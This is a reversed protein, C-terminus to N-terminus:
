KGFIAGGQVAIDVGINELEQLMDNSVGGDVAISGKFNPLLKKFEKVRDIPNVIPEQNSFGPNVCLLLVSDIDPNFSYYFDAFETINTEPLIGIGIDIKYTDEYPWIYGGDEPTPLEEKDLKLDKFKPNIIGDRTYTRPVKDLFDFIGNSEFHFTISFICHGDPNHGKFSDTIYDPYEDMMLHVDIGRGNLGLTKHVIFDYTEIGIQKKAFNDDALDLHIRKKRDVKEEVEFYLGGPELDSYNAALVSASIIM